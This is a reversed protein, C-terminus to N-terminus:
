TTNTTGFRRAAAARGAEGPTVPPIHSNGFQGWRPAPKPGAKDSGGFLATLHGIVKETDIDGGDGYFAAPNVTDVFASLQDGTVFQAAVSRITAADLKPRLEAEAAARAEAAAKDTAEKLARDDASLKETRLTELEQQMATIQEPTVGNFAALKNDTQRNHFKYYNAREADTMSSIPTNEPFGRDTGQPASGGTSGAAPASAGGGGAEPGDTAPPVPGNSPAFFVRFRSNRYM